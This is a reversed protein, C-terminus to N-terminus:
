MSKKTNTRAVFTKDPCQIHIVVDPSEQALALARDEADDLSNFSETGIRWVGVVESDFILNQPPEVPCSGGVYAWSCDPYAQQVWTGGTQNGGGPCAPTETPHDNTCVLPAPCTGNVYTWTCDPYPARQWTGGVQYQGDTCRPPNAPQVNQCVLPAPCVGGEYVWSCDPYPRRVWTGGIQRQGDACLPTQTPASSVPCTPSGGTPGTTLEVQYGTNNAPGKISLRWGRQFPGVTSLAQKTITVGSTPTLVNVTLVGATATLGNITPETPTVIQFTATAGNTTAYTDKVLLRNTSFELTRSWSTVALSAPVSTHRFHNALGTANVTLVGNATSHTVQAIPTRGEYQRIVAGASTEFRLMNKCITAQEIGSQSYINGNVAAWDTGKWLCFSGQEQGAHSQNYRGGVFCMWTADAEWSTRSFLAGVEPAHFTLATPPTTNTGQELLGERRCYYQTPGFPMMKNMLYSAVNKADTDATAARGAAMLIWHYDFWEPTSSRSLDGIPAFMKTNGPVCAHAWYRLTNALHPAGQITGGNALWIQYLFFLNKHATGYGTGEESGGGPISAFYSGMTSMCLNARTQWYGDGKALNWLVTATSFSYYYNNGPQDTGWGTWTALRNGWRAQGPNWINFIAQDAYAAWRQRQTTTLSAGCWDYVFSLDRLMPGSELYSDYAVQPNQNAAIRAEAAAVQQEAMNVALVRYKDQPDLRYMYAADSACFGYVRQADTANPRAAETDVMAKFRSFPTGTRNVYSLDLQITM